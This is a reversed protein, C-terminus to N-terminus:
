SNNKYKAILKLADKPELKENLGMILHHESYQISNHTNKKKKTLFRTSLNYMITSLTTTLELVYKKLIM